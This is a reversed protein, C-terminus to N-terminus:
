SLVVGHLCIPTHLYLEVWEEVKSSSLLSHDAEAAKDGHFSVVSGMPYFAWHAGSGTQVRLRLSFNGVVAPFRVGLMRDDLAIFSVGAFYM